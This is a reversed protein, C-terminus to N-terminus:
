EPPSRSTRTTAPAPGRRCPAPPPSPGTAPPSLGAPATPFRNFSTAGLRTRRMIVEFAFNLSERSPSCSSKPSYSKRVGARPRGLRTVWAIAAVAVLSFTGPEPVTTPTYTLSLTHDAPDLNWGFSGAVPNSFGSADFATDANLNAVDVPGAYAGIWHVAVWIYSRTPDFDAMPGAIDDGVTTPNVLTDIAVTLKDGPTATWTFDGSTTVTGVVQRTAKILGWGSVQGLADPNPGAVGTADDIAFVYSNVGGPGLILRGFVASGPSNGAQFKGGNQTIVPNQFFGAGKVLSGFDAIVTATGNGGNSSDAVFGNNVLLGGAVVANQGQLDIGAVFAPPGTTPNIATAATGIFTRSGGDFYLPTTGINTLLSRQGSGVVAPNLVLTGYTQFDTAVVASAAGVTIAGSGQNTVGNLTM